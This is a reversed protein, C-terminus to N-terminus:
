ACGWYSYLALSFNAVITKGFRQMLGCIGQLLFRCLRNVIFLWLNPNVSSYLTIILPMLTGYRTGGPCFAILSTYFCTYWNWREKKGKFSNGYVFVVIVAANWLMFSRWSNQKYWVSTIHFTTRLSPIFTHFDSTSRCTNTSTHSIELVRRFALFDPEKFETVNKM